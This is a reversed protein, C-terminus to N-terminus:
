QKKYFVIGSSMQAAAHLSQGMNLEAAMKARSIAFSFVKFNLTPIM